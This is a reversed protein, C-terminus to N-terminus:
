FLFEPATHLKALCRVEDINLHRPRPDFRDTNDVHAGRVGPSLERCEIAICASGKQFVFAGFALELTEHRLVGLFCDPMAHTGLAGLGAGDAKVKKLRLRGMGRDLSITAASAEASALACAARTLGSFDSMAVM